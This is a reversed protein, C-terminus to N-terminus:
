KETIRFNARRNQAWASEDHGSDVPKEKGYSITTMRSSSIGEDQLYRRVANARREGLAINYQIGGREDCHGEIQIKISSHDKLIQANQSLLNKNESDLTSSDYPFHITELGMAKHSDSDALDSGIDSDSISTESGAGEEDKTKKSCSAFAFVLIILLPLLRRLSSKPTNATGIFFNM